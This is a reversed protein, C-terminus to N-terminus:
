FGLELYSIIVMFVYFLLKKCKILTICCLLIFFDKGADFDTLVTVDNNIHKM